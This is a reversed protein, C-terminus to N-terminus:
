QAEILLYKVDMTYYGPQAFGAVPTLAGCNDPAALPFTVPLGPVIRYDIIYYFNSATLQGNANGAPPNVYPNTTSLYSGGTMGDGAQTPDGGAIMKDIATPFTYPNAGPTYITNQGNIGQGVNGLVSQFALSYDPTVCGGALNTTTTNAPFQHLELANLPIANSASPSLVGWQVPNDWDAVGVSGQSIGAAYLEWNVTSSVTLITAGYKIEGGMYSAINDFTFDVEDPTNMNLQLVPQLDMTITVNQEDQIQAQANIGLMLGLGLAAAAYIKKNM